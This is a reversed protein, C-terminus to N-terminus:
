TAISMKEDINLLSQKTLGDKDTKRLVKNKTEKKNMSIKLPISGEIMEPYFQAFKEIGETLM